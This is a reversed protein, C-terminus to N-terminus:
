AAQPNWHTELEHTCIAFPWTIDLTCCESGGSITKGIQYKTWQRASCAWAGTRTGSAMPLSWRMRYSIPRSLMSDCETMAAMQAHHGVCYCPRKYPAVELNESYPEILIEIESEIREIATTEPSVGKPLIVLTCFHSM